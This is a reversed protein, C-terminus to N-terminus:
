GVDFVPPYTDKSCENALTKVYGDMGHYCITIKSNLLPSYWCEVEITLDAFTLVAFDDSLIVFYFSICHNMFREHIM